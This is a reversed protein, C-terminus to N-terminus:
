KEVLKEMVMIVQSQCLLDTPPLLATHVWSSDGGGIYWNFFHRIFSFQRPKTIFKVPERSRYSRGAHFQKLRIDLSEYPREKEEGILYNNDRGVEFGEQRYRNPRRRMWEDSMMTM